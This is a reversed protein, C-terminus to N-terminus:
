PWPAPKVRWLVPVSVLLIVVAAVLLAPDVEPDWRGVLYKAVGAGVGVLGFGRLVTGIVRRPSVERWPWRTQGQDLPSM